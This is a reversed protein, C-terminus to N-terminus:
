PYISRTNLTAVHPGTCKECAPFGWPPSDEFILAGGASKGLQHAMLTGCRMVFGDNIRSEV